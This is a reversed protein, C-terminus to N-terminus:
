SRLLYVTEELAQYEGLSMIVVSAKGKRKIIIPDNGNRVQDMVKALNRRAATYSISDM